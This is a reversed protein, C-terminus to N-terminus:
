SQFCPKLQIVGRSAFPCRLSKLPVYNSLSRFLYGGHKTPKQIYFRCSLHYVFSMITLLFYHGLIYLDQIKWEAKVNSILYQISRNWCQFQLIPNKIYFTQVLLKETKKSHNNKNQLIVFFHFTNCHKEGNFSGTKVWVLSFIM